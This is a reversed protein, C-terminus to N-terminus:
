ERTQRDGSRGNLAAFIATSVLEIKAFGCNCMVVVGRGTRPYLVMRTTTETQSGNHSIKLGQRGDEVVFGLGYQTAKGDKTKQPTWMLRETTALVVHHNLLATAWHAFDAVNSKYGGAGFKWDNAEDPARVVRGLLKRYGAAWGPGVVARDLQLSAMGIPKGIRERVQADFGKKGAREVVASLLIYAYSSYDAKEGPSFILPSESFRAISRLARDPNGEAKGQVIKGNTYHPIGSQHCLLQRTTITAGKAPFEPVYQRVDADLELAGKEVLQLALVAAMPKSNSAWNFVSKTSTLTLKERDAYGYGKLYVVRSDRIVGIAVGVLEQMDMVRRVALDIATAQKADLERDTAVQARAHVSWLCLALAVGMSVLARRCM